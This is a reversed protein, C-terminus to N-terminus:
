TQTHTEKQSDESFERRGTRYCEWCPFGATLDACACDDDPEDTNAEREMERGKETETARESEQSPKSTTTQPGGDAIVPEPVDRDCRALTSCIAPRIGVAVRHKCAGEYRENAPCECGTPLGDTVTVLYEHHEPDAYSENRVLVGGAEVHLSFEFAEYQARKTVRTTFELYTLPHM